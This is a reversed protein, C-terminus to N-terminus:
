RRHMSIASCAATRPMSRPWRPAPRPKWRARTGSSAGSPCGCATSARRSRRSGPLTRTFPMTTTIRFLGVSGYYPLLKQQEFDRLKGDLKGSPPQPIVSPDYQLDKLCVADGGLIVIKITYQDGPYLRDKFLPPREPQTAIASNFAKDAAELYKSLQVHSLDLGGGVKDYGDARGDEPLMDRVALGPLDFLDRM